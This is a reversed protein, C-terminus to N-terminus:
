RAERTSPLTQLATLPTCADFRVQYPASDVGPISEPREVSPIARSIAEDLTAVDLTALGRDDWHLFNMFASYKHISM